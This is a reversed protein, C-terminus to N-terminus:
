DASLTAAPWERPRIRTDRGVISLRGASSPLPHGSLGNGCGQDCRPVDVLWEPNVALCMAM